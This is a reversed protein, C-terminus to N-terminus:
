WSRPLDTIMLDSGSQEIVGMLVTKGDPSVALPGVSQGAVQALLVPAPAGPRLVYLASHLKTSDTVTYYVGDRAPFYGAPDTLPLVEQEESGDVRVRRLPGQEGPNVTFYVWQGSPDLKPFHAEGRTLVVRSAGDASVRVLKKEAILYISKGDASIADIVERFQPEPVPQGGAIEVRLGRVPGRLGGNYHVSKGDPAWVPTGAGAGFTLQRLNRALPDALWLQPAGSRESVFLVQSGDPSFAPIADGASTAVFPRAAGATGDAHIDFRLIAGHGANREFAIKRGDRSVAAAGARDGLEILPFAKAAGRELRWVFGRYKERVATFVLDGSPMWVPFIGYGDPIKAPPGSAHLDATLKQIYISIDPGSDRTFAISRGDRSWAPQM